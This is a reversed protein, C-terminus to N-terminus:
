LLRQVHGYPTYIRRFDDVLDLDRTWLPLACDMPAPGTKEVTSGDPLTYVLRFHLRGEPFFVAKARKWVDKKWAQTGPYSPILGLVNLGAGYDACRRIWDGISVLTYDKAWADFAKKGPKTLVKKQEDEWGHVLALEVKKADRDSPWIYERKGAAGCECWSNDRAGGTCTPAHEKWKWWGKGFPPNVFADTVDPIDWPDVLGDHGNQLMYERKARVHSHPNSCPDLDVQKGFLKVNLDCLRDETCWDCSLATPIHGAM